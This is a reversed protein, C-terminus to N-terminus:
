IQKRKPPSLPAYPVPAIVDVRQLMFPLTEGMHGFVIQLGPRTEFAGGIMRLVHLATEAL